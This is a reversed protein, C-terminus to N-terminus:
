NVKEYNDIYIKSIKISDIKNQRVHYIRTKRKNILCITTNHKVCKLTISFTSLFM